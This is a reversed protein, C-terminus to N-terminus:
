LAHPGPSDAPARGIRNFRGLPGGSSMTGLTAIPLATLPDTDTITSTQALMNGIRDYRYNISGGDGTTAGRPGCCYGAYTIRYLDDYDFLQTNRRPDGTPVASTPRNDHIAKINSADDFDYIFNILQQNTQSTSVTFISGLRLRPDYGYSTVVGNGYTISD